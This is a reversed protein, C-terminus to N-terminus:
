FYEDLLLHCVEGINDIVTHKPTIEGKFISSFDFFRDLTSEEMPLPELDFDAFLTDTDNANQLRTSSVVIKESLTDAHTCQLPEKLAVLAHHLQQQLPANCRIVSHPIEPLIAEYDGNSFTLSVVSSSSSPLLETAVVQESDSNSTSTSSIATVNGPQTDSDSARGKRTQAKAKTSSPYKTFLLDRFAQGVKERAHRDSVTYWKEEDFKVFGGGDPSTGRISNVIDSVIKSKQYKCNCASYRPLNYHVLARLRQNGEHDLALKGRACIVDLKSPSFSPPLPVMAKSSSSRSNSCIM